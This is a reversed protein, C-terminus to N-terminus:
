LKSSVALNLAESLVKLVKDVYERRANEGMTGIRFIQGATPGLGGSIEIAYKNAAYDIVAKWDTGKPVKIAAITPMRYAPNQVHMELGIRQLGAQLYASTDEHRRIIEALGEQCVGALAERLGYLM